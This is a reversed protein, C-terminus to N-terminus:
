LNYRGKLANYNQTVESQSLVKNYVQTVAINGNLPFSANFINGVYNTAGNGTNLSISAVPFTTTSQLVGNLYILLQKTTSNYTVGGYYWTNSILTTPQLAASYYNFTFRSNEIELAFRGGVTETGSYFLWQRTSITTTSKFIMFVSKSSDGTPVVNNVSVIDNSGDFIISGGNDGNWITQSGFNTLTGNNNNGSLDRWLTGTRPYSDIKGADLDLVLGDKVIGGLYSIRGAM